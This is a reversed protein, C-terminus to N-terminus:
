GSLRERLLRQAEQPNAAGGTKKMVQGVLFGIVGEKGGRFQEVPDPNEAIVEDVIGGLAGEDSIQALGKEDVIEGVPRGTAFAEALAVKAGASALTGDAALRSLDALHQPTVKGDRLAVDHEHLLAALDGTLWNAAARPEAGLDVAEELFEAWGTTGVLVRATTAPLGLEEEFRGRRAAPLEPLEARLKEIWELDPEIPSLDPEPFYRYDFAYEKSRLPLTVGRDEDWHRTEQVL